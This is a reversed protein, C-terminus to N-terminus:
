LFLGGSAFFSRAKELSGSFRSHRAVPLAGQLPAPPLAAVPTFNIQVRRPGNGPGQELLGM